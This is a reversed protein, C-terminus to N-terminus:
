QMQDGGYLLTSYNLFFLSKYLSDSKHLANYLEVDKQKNYICTLFM